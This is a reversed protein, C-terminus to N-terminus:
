GFGDFIRVIFWYSHIARNSCVKKTLYKYEVFLQLKNASFHHQNENEPTTFIGGFFNKVVRRGVTPIQTFDSV